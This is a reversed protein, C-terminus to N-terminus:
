WRVTINNPGSCHQKPVLLMEVPRYHLMRDVQSTTVGCGLEYGLDLHQYLLVNLVRTPCLLFYGSYNELRRGWPSVALRTQRLRVGREEDVTAVPRSMCSCDISVFYKLLWLWLRILAVTFRMSCALCPRIVSFTSQEYIEHSKTLSFSLGTLSRVPTRANKEIWDAAENMKTSHKMWRPASWRTSDVSDRDILSNATYCFCDENTLSWICFNIRGEQRQWQRCNHYDPKKLWM